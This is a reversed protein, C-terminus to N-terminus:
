LGMWQRVRDLFGVDRTSGVLVTVWGPEDLLYDGDVPARTDSLITVYLPSSLPRKEREDKKVFAANMDAAATDTIEKYGESILESRAAKVVEKFEGKFTYSESIIGAQINANREAASLPLPARGKLFEFKEAPQGFLLALVFFALAGAVVIGGIWPLWKPM